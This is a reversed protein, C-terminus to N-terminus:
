VLRKKGFVQKTVNRADRYGLWAVLAVSWTQPLEKITIFRSLSSPYYNCKHIKKMYWEGKFLLLWESATRVVTLSIM